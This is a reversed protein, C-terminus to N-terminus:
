TDCEVSYCFDILNAGITFIRVRKQRCKRCKLFDTDLEEGRQLIFDAFSTVSKMM